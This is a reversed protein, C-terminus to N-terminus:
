TKAPEGVLIVKLIEMPATGAKAAADKLTEDDKMSLNRAALKKKAVALDFGIEEALMALTKRGMGRGEFKEDVMEDTYVPQGAAAATSLSAKVAVTSGADVTAGAAASGELSKIFQYIKVPSTGHKKAIVALSETDTFTIGNGQLVTTVQGMDMQLKKTFSPMTLLEAHGMPPEHDKDRIWAQKITNNLTLVYSLPPVQYVAGAICFVTVVAAIALERQMMLSKDRRTTFYGLLTRWNLVIHYAGSALFMLSTTIHIDGWQSKSLGLMHWETWEAIRGQPVIFLLVGSLSMVIFSFTTLLSAFGKSHLAKTAMEM